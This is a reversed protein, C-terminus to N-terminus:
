ISYLYRPHRSGLESVEQESLGELRHDRKGAKRLRNERVCYLFAGIFILLTASTSGRLYIETVHSQSCCLFSKCTSTPPKRTPLVSLHSSLGTSPRDTRAKISNGTIVSWTAVIAGVTGVSVVMAIAVGRATDPAQLTNWDSLSKRAFALCEGHQKSGLCTRITGSPLCWHCGSVLM